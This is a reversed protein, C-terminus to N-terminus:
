LRKVIKHKERALFAKTDLFRCDKEKSHPVPIGIGPPRMQKALKERTMSPPGDMLMSAFSDDNAVDPFICFVRKYKEAFFPCAIPAGVARDCFKTKVPSLHEPLRNYIIRKRYGLDLAQFTPNTRKFGM